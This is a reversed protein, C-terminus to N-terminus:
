NSFEYDLAVLAALCATDSKLVRSGLSVLSFGKSRAFESEDPSFDGEPGIAIVANNGNFGRVAEKLKVTDERLTAMLKLGHAAHGLIAEKFEGPEKIIPVTARGCQKAAEQALRGWRESASRIKDRGWRVITRDTFVPVIEFVGLETSKEVMYDMKNKKPIAQILTIRFVQREPPQITRTIEIQLGNHTLKKIFGEHEKGTGDFVTVSDSERLRMVDTIHHAEKGTVHIIGGEVSDKPVFFRAM